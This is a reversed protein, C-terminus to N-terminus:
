SDNPPSENNKKEPPQYRRLPVKSAYKDRIHKPVKGITKAKEKKPKM